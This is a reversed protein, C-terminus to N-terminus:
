GGAGQGKRSQKGGQGKGAGVQMDQIHRVLQLKFLRGSLGSQAYMDIGNRGWSRGSCGCRDRLFLCMRFLFFCRSCLWLLGRLRCFLWLYM